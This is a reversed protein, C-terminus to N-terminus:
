SKEIMGFIYDLQSFRQQTDERLAIKNENAYKEAARYDRWRKLEWHAPDWFRTHENPKGWDSGNIIRLKKKRAVEYGIACVIDWEKKTMNWGHETSIIDVACGYQHPSEGARAKTVKKEFLQNQREGSRYFEHAKVTIGRKECEYRMAKFFSVIEPHVGFYNAAEKVRTKKTKQDILSIAAEEYSDHAWKKRWKGRLKDMLRILNM